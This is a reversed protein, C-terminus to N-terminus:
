EEREEWRGREGGGERSREGVRVVGGKSEM